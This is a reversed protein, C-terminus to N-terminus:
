ARRRAGPRGKVLRHFVPFLQAVELWGKMRHKFWVRFETALDVSNDFYGGDFWPLAHGLARYFARRSKQRVKKSRLNERQSFLVEEHTIPTTTIVARRIMEQILADAGKNRTLVVSWPHTDDLFRPIWADGCAVDALEGTADVCLHCRLHKPLGTLGVYQPYPFEDEKGSQDEVRMSGPQGNGRFRFFSIRAPDMGRRKALLSINRFNKIGGCFNGITLVIKANFLPDRDQIARIGALQCPTGIVAIRYSERKIERLAQSLDVPCYKSGQSKLMEERSGALWCVTRPAAGYTFGTTLVRDVLNNELLFIGIQSMVGGSSANLMVGSDNSYAAYRGYTRGLQLDYPAEPYRREAAAVIDYGKGPCLAFALPDSKNAATLLPIYQARKASYTTEAIADSYACVGCGICLGAQVVDAVNKM